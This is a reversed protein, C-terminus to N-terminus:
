KKNAAKVAIRLGILGLTAAVGIVLKKRADADGAKVDDVFAQAKVKTDEAKAKASTLVENKLHEPAFRAALEDVTATLEERVRALDREVEAASRDDVADKPAEYDVAKKMSATVRAEENM